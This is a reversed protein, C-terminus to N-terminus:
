LLAQEIVCLSLLAIGVFRRKDVAVQEGSQGTGQLSLNRALKVRNPLAVSMAAMGRGFVGTRAPRGTPLDYVPEAVVPTRTGIDSVM